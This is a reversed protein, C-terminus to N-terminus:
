HGCIEHLRNTFKGHEIDALMDLTVRASTENRLIYDRNEPYQSARWNTILMTMIHRTRVLDPLLDIEEPMLPSVDHYGRVFAEIEGLSSPDDTCLYACAVAVDIILPAHGSAM